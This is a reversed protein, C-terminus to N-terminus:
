IYQPQQRNDGLAHRLDAISRTLTAEAIFRGEWVGEIIEDRSVVRGEQSALFVLLDMVQPELRRVTGGERVENLMPQVQWRGVQLGSHGTCKGGKRTAM